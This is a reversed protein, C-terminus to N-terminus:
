AATSSWTARPISRSEAPDAGPRPRRRHLAPQRRHHGPRELPDAAEWGGQRDTREVRRRGVAGPQLRPHRRRHGGQRDEDAGRRADTRGLARPFARERVRGLAARAAPRRARTPLVVLFPGMFADDIPGQLGHVKRLGTPPAKADVLAWKGDAKALSPAPDGAGVAVKQGDVTLVSAATLHPWEVRLRTVNTTTLAVDAGHAQADIRADQWHHELGEARLWFLRDYRLTRTQLTLAEPAAPRGAAVAEHVYALMEKLTAPNYQHAVGPGIFHRLTRGSATYAEEMMRAGQIQPDKEGSYCSFQVAFTNRAYDPADYLGWLTQEWPAPYRDPTLKNYRATEAFGAGCSIACFHDAYHAGLHKAGAGGMSFGILVIRAPDIRYHAEADAIADLVDLEGAAKFGVCGRGFAQLTIADDPHVEGRNHACGNLFHLDTGREDRGHLWM